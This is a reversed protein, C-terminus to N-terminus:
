HFFIWVLWAKWLAPIGIFGSYKQSLNHFTKLLTM